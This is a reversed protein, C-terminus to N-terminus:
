EFTSERVQAAFLVRSTHGTLEAIMLMSPYEWLSLQNQTFGHCSLLEHESKSWLLCCVQSGTDVSSLYAGTQTNWSKISQDGLGGGSALLNRQFPCWALAKVASTHEEFLHLWQNQGRTQNSSAMSIDWIHILNDNGGSALQLGADSWKLGCVEGRHGRYTQVVHSRMRVDNNVIKGDMGATTLIHNNWSLSAVRSAHVGRLTRMLRNSNADWLQIDSSNLGVAIHCGDPAWSVSTVPGADDDVTVLASTSGSSADWLYVTEGLAISLVNNSGWDLLNLYYDDIIDPADLTREASQSIHRQQKKAPKTRHLASLSDAEHFFPRAPTPPKSNYTFIRSRNQLLNEALLKRYALKSPPAPATAKEKEKRSETLLYNAVDMNM